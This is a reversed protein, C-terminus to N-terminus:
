DQIGHRQEFFTLLDDELDSLYMQRGFFELVAYTCRDFMGVNRLRKIRKLTQPLQRRADPEDIPKLNEPKVLITADHVDVRLTFDNLHLAIAWCGNYKRQEGELRILIFLDGTSCFDTARILPKQKLREVIGKVIRGSPIKNGAQEVASQWVECQENPELNTLDRVQRENAPMIQQGITLLNEFVSAAAIKNYASFRTFGFRDRCYEEFTKHTARYLRKDRLEALAKGGEYFAREVKLELRHLEAVEAESLEELVQVAPVSITEADSLEFESVLPMEEPQNSESSVLELDLPNCSTPIVIENDSDFQVWVEPIAYGLNIEQFVGLKGTVRHRVRDGRNFSQAVALRTEYNGSTSQARLKTKPM